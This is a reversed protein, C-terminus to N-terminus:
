FLKSFNETQVDRYYPIDKYQNTMGTGGGFSKKCHVIINYISANVIATFMLLSLLSLSYRKQTEEKLNM